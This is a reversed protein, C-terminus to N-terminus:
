ARPPQVEVDLMKSLLDVFLRSESGQTGTMDFAYDSWYCWDPFPGNNVFAGNGFFTFLTIERDDHLRLGTSFVDIADHAFSLFSNPSCDSYGYTVARINRFRIKTTHGVLWLYRNHISVTQSTADIEVRRLVAGLTLLGFRWGTTAILRDDEKHIRPGISLLSSVFPM